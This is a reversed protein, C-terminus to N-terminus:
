GHLKVNQRDFFVPDCLLANLHQGHLEDYVRVTEGHRARANKVLALGIWQGVMPSFCVSTIHGQSAKLSPTEGLKLVHAGARFRDSADVPKIGILQLRDERLLGERGAMVKGIYDKTQSMMRGFGLDGATTTGDLESGTVHGKEIRMVNLAEVGYPTIGFVSGAHMLCRLAFDGHDAAVAIEYAHEGSFSIRFLRVPIGGFATTEVVGMFPLSEDSLVFRDLVRNLTARAYPGAVSMQAWQDTVSTYHADLEPWHAQHCFEIHSMVRAANATTTTIFYHNEGLRSVTGDDFLFGDERLMLGYRARCIKLTAFNNCYLREILELADPGAIEIKGLTSVDCLGVGARTAKVERTVSEMWGKEGPQPFWQTRHWLGTEVFVAGQEAAWEHLPTQRVPMFHQARYPGALASIAVPTYFPRYTTTGTQKMSRGTAASLLAMGNVNSLKGQDTAMGLTTYRKALEADRYGEQAALPIDKATVDNQFDVFAKGRSQAVRWLPEIAFVERAVAPCHVPKAKFGAARAAQAGKAAGDKLCEALTFLGAASGASVFEDGNEPPVFAATQPDWLPKKGRQCALHVVPSWGGSIALGDCAIRHTVGNQEIQISKLRKGGMADAVVAGELLPVGGRDLSAAGKARSDILAVVNVGAAKLDRATRYGSNNNTFVAISRGPAVAYRNVYVRMASALMVGPIDNGGFVLPREEAGTALVAVRAFIRWYRQRPEFAEPQPKHDAVREVAGFTNGDYWGFVTTRPLLTVNPFNALEALSAACFDHATGNGIWDRESLLSGGLCAGEDVLMVRAGARAGTLAAMLGTPGSGIVLVDCHATSKEYSDPDALGSARGLGAARRILPEYVREWFRKPRMFTKYYFGAGLFPSFLQAVSGFDNELSPWRNQSRACLGDFLEAVTARTNPERRAGERLEVLANPEAASATLVGRPRHYKFSRGALIKGSALLASALTDGQFGSLREGDFQFKLAKSRDILGGEPLRYGSM